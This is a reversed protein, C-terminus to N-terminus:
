TAVGLRSLASHGNLIGEYFTLLKKEEGPWNYQEQVARRGREGMRAAEDPHDVLYDIAEAIATPDKPDVCLGCASDEVIERWLPFNSAIVPIGAAMYEFMKVPLADLYSVLPHLTVLGAMARALVDRVGTRDLHGLEDVRRWGPMARATRAVEAELFRGALRIRVPSRLREGAQVIELVGRLRSLGGVYCVEQRREDWATDADLEEPIPYNAVTAVLPALAGMQSAISPTAAVVGDLRPLAHHQYREALGALPGRMWSPLYTKGRIQRPLDEHADYVVTKGMRKLCLGVPILEPDHLHYVVADLAIARRLVRRTASLMRRLRGGSRGVDVIAVGDERADGLGDAVVFTVDYGHRALSRCQKVFIRTDHRPHVSTLHAIRCPHSATM